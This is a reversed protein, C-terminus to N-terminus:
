SKWEHHRTHKRVSINMESTMYFVTFEQKNQGKLGAHIM